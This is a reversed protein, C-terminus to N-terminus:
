TPTVDGVARCRAKGAARDIAEMWRWNGVRKQAARVELGSAQSQCGAIATPVVSGEEVDLVGLLNQGTSAM